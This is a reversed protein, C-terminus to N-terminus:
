FSVILINGLVATMQLNKGPSLFVRKWPQHELHNTVWHQPDASPRGIEIALKLIRV